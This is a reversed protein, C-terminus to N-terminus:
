RWRLIRFRNVLFFLTKSKTKRLLQRQSTDKVLKAVLGHQDKVSSFNTILAM